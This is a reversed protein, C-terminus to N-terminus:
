VTKTTENLHQTSQLSYETPSVGYEKKFARRFYVPSGFGTMYAISSISEEKALILEAARRMKLKIVFENATLGIISKTKRNLTAPSMCLKDALFAQDFEEKEMNEEVIKQFKNIFEEDLKSFQVSVKEEENAPAGTTAEEAEKSKEPSGTMGVIRLALKHRAKIINNIRSRLLTTTFPKTIYSDAGSEYGEEKDVLSDKATLMIFPIHSTVLDEKVKRCLETGTMEPMMIDSVVIDPMKEHIIRLGEKGNFAMLVNFDEEFSQAVYKCIDADDEVVLLTLKGDALPAISKTKSSVSDTTKDNTTRRKANPYINGAILSVTFRSGAGLESEVSISGEHIDVLNKTLALGIGTGSTQKANAGQYYRKFIHPLNEKEIGVGTDAVSLEAYKVDKEIRSKLSLTISGSSTYKMANSMLNNIITNIIDPDYWVDEDKMSDVDIIVSVNPNTNLEKFRLGIERVYNTLNGCVVELERNRTETKRFELIGNILNLLRMSSTRITHLKQRQKAPLTVDNVLDEIPGIILSLPTRLEHTINTFFMMREENLKENNQSNEREVALNKELRLKHRYFLTVAAVVAVALILYLLKSWWTWYYPAEVIITALVVPDSWDHGNIRNRVQFEYKGPKLNRYIAENRDPSITWIDNLGKMNYSIESNAAKTIDLNSFRITFTNANYPLKIIDSLNPIEVTEVDKSEHPLHVQLSTISIKGNHQGEKGSEPSFSTLGNLSGFYIRGNVDVCSANENYSGLPNSFSRLYTSIIHTEPNYCAVGTNTAMWVNGASDMELSRVDSNLRGTDDKIIEYDEINSASVKILGKRTALWIFGKGDFLVSNVTNSPLGNDNNFIAMRKLAPNFVTVGKGFTGIWLNGQGDHCMSLIFNDPLQSAIDECYLATKGDECYYLGKDTGIYVRGSPAELFVRIDRQPIAVKSFTRSSPNYILVGSNNTGIWLDGKSDFYLARINSKKARMENPLSIRKQSNGDVAIVENVGGIYIHGSHDAEASWVSQDKIPYGNLVFPKDNTFFPPQYSFVDVGSSYNGIWKNGFSDEFMTYVFPSSVMDDAIMTEDSTLNTFRYKGEMRDATRLISVGGDSTGFWIDGNAMEVISRIAGPLLSDSSSGTRIFTFKESVPNFVGIGESLGLWAIGNRDLHIAFVSNTPLDSGEPGYYNKYELTNLNVRTMGHGEHGIYLYKGDKDEVSCWNPRPFEAMRKNYLPTVTGTEPDIKDPTYYFHTVWIKHDHSVSMHPIDPSHLTLTFKKIEGTKSDYRCLGDHRTSIWLVDKNVPDPLLKNLENSTLGSNEMTYCRFSKGDFRCLGGGTAVWVYGHADQAISRIYNSGLGSNHDLHFAHMKGAATLQGGTFVSMFLIFLIKFRM